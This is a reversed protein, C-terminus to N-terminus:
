LRALFEELKLTLMEPLNDEPKGLVHELLYRQATGIQTGKLGIRALEGGSIALQEVRVCPNQSLVAELRLLAEEGAMAASARCGDTGYAALARRWGADDQPLGQRLLMWGAECSRITAGDLKLSRLFDGASAICEEEMLRACLGAWRLLPEAPICTLGCLDTPWGKAWRNMLGFSFFQTVCAPRDSCLTKELEVRVREAAVHEAGGACARIAAETEQTLQFGLQAAFRVARFMRLADEAFRQEPKGVCRIVGDRLDTQGGFLDIIEGDPALAMANITFDRRSLDERLTADFYVMDPHRGDSYGSEGRFTTVEISKDELIVTITGHKIGTPVVREFLEMVQEPRASTTVDWDGPVRGLLLDRVCGGVPYADFGANWLTRCCQVAGASVQEWLM